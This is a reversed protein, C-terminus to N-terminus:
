TNEVIVREVQPTPTEMHDEIAADVDREDGIIMNHMIICAIMIEHLVHKKWFREPGDALYYGMNYEKGQIVFNTPSAIGEALNAFEVVVRCFRKLSEITTSEGIKIYKDTADAPLGYALMRFEVAIKQLASLGLRCLAERRQVFYNDHSSANERDRNIVIHGTISGGHTVRNFRQNLNQTILILNEQHKIMAEQEADIAQLDDMLQVGVESNDESSSSSSSTSYSFHSPGGVNFNM